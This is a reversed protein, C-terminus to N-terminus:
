KKELNGQRRFVVTGKPTKKHYCADELVVGKTKIAVKGLQLDSRARVLWAKAIEAQLPENM